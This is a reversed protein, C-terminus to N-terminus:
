DDLFRKDSKLAEVRTRKLELYGKEGNGPLKKDLAYDSAKIHIFILDFKKDQKDFRGHLGDIWKNVIMFFVKVALGTAAILILILSILAWRPLISLDVFCLTKLFEM